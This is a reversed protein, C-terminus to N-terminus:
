EKVISADGAMVRRIVDNEDAIILAGFDDIGLVEGAQVDDNFVVQIRKGVMDSYRLWMDKLFGFGEALMRTYVNELNDFLKVTLDLRSIESGAEEKLSTAIDRFSEDFDVREINVNIGIGVIIFDVGKAASASMETLIGCVKRGRIQVDNPWKLTVNEPCYVSLLDAVAVGTMLTIQPAFMPDIAPRLVISTYINCGPPSQWQRKLRGKGKTQCDAIVVTGEPAGSKALRSAVDNTSEVEKFFQINNGIRKESLRDALNRENFEM